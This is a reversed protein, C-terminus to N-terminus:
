QVPIWDDFSVRPDVDFHYHRLSSLNDYESAMVKNMISFKSFEMPESFATKEGKKWKHKDKESHRSESEMMEFVKEKSYELEMYYTLIKRIRDFREDKIIKSILSQFKKISFKLM